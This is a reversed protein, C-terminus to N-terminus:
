HPFHCVQLVIPKVKAIAEFMKVFENISIIQESGSRDLPDIYNFHTREINDNDDISMGTLVIAHGSVPDAPNPALAVWLPGYDKLLKMWGNPSHNMEPPEAVLKLKQLLEPTDELSLATNNEYLQRYKPGAKDMVEEITYTINDHWSLLITAVTAWCVQDKPQHLPVLLGTVHFEPM